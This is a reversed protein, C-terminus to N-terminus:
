GGGGQTMSGTPVSFDLTAVTTKVGVQKGLM